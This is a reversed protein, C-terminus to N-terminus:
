RRWPEQHEPPEPVADRPADRTWWEVDAARRGGASGFFRPIAPAGWRAKRRARRREELARQGPTATRGLWWWGAICAACVICLVLAVV